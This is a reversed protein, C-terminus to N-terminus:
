KEGAIVPLNVRGDGVMAPHIAFETTIENRTKLGQIAGFEATLKRGEGKV